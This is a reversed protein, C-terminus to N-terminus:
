PRILAAGGAPAGAAASVTAAANGLPATARLPQDLLAISPSNLRRAYNVVSQTPDHPLARWPDAGREILYAVLPTQQAPDALYTPTIVRALPVWPLQSGDRSPVR